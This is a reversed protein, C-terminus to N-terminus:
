SPRGRRSVRISHVLGIVPMGSVSAGASALIPGSFGSSPRVSSRRTPSASKLLLLVRLYCFVAYSNRMLSQLESTHEESREAQGGAFGRVLCVADEAPRAKGLGGVRRHDGIGIVARDAIVAPWPALRPHQAGVRDGANGVGFGGGLGIDARQLWLVPELRALDDDALDARFAVVRAAEQHDAVGIRHLLERGSIDQRAIIRM